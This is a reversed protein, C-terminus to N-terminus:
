LTFPIGAMDSTNRGTECWGFTTKLIKIKQKWGAM